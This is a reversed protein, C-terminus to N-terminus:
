QSFFFNTLLQVLGVYGQTDIIEDDAELFAFSGGPVIEIFYGGLLSESVVAASSDDPIQIGSQVSFRLDATYDEPHLEMGAVTGIRVGAMRVDSGVSIGQASSFRASLSYRDSGGAVSDNQLLYYLFGAALFLVAAGVLVEFRNESM